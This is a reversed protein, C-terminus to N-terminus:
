GSGYLCDELDRAALLEKYRDSQGRIEDVSMSKLENTLDKSAATAGKLADANAPNYGGGGGSAERAASEAEEDEDVQLQYVRQGGEENLLAVEAFTGIMKLEGDEDVGRKLGGGVPLLPTAGDLLKPRHGGGAAEPHLRANFAGKFVFGIAYQDDIAEWDLVGDVVDFESCYHNYRM